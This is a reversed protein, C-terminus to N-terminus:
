DNVTLHMMLCIMTVVDCNVDCSVSVVRVDCM